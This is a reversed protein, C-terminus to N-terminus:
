TIDCDVIKQVDHFQGIACRNDGHIHNIPQFAITEEFSWRGGLVVAVVLATQEVMGIGDHSKEQFQRRRVTKSPFAGHTREDYSHEMVEAFDVLIDGVVTIPCVVFVRYRPLVIGISEQFTVAIFRDYKERLEVRQSLFFDHTDTIVHTCEGLFLLPSIVSTGDVEVGIDKPCVMCIHKSGM